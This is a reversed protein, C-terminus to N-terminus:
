NYVFVLKVGGLPTTFNVQRLRHTKEVFLGVQAQMTGTVSPSEVKIPVKKGRLVEKFKRGFARCFLFVAAMLEDLVIQEKGQGFMKYFSKVMQDDMLLVVSGGHGDVEFTQLSIFESMLVLPGHMFEEKEPIINEKSITTLLEALALRCAKSIDPIISNRKKHHERTLTSVRQIIGRLDQPKFPKDVIYIDKLDYLAKRHDDVKASLVIIPVHSNESTRRITEIVGVGDTKPMNLDTIVLDFAQNKFKFVGESGDIATVPRHGDKKVIAVLNDLLDQEDDILLINLNAM